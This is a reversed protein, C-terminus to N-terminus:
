FVEDLVKHVVDFEFGRRLLYDYIRKKAKLKEVNGMKELREHALRKAIGFDDDASRQKKILGDAIDEDIGKKILEKKLGLVGLPKRKTRGEVWYSAFADDNIYGIKALHEVAEKIAADGFGKERLNDTVEASSRPRYSLKRLAAFVAKKFDPDQPM